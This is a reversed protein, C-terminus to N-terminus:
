RLWVVIVVAAVILRYVVFITLSRTQLYRLMFQIALVGSVFAAIMGVLLPGLEVSVGGEGTALKRVEFVAAGATIPTAMLFSFRAAAERGLGAFRGASISIGSRSIGPILALAQAVGLGFAIPFTVDAIGKTPGGWRDALWLVVAGAVLM